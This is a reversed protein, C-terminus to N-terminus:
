FKMKNKIYENTATDLMTQWNKFKTNQSVHHDMDVDPIAEFDEQSEVKFNGAILFDNFSSFNTHRKMFSPVFLDDFSIRNERKAKKSAREMSKLQKQLKNLGKVKIKSM